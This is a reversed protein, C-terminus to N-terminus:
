PTPRVLKLINEISKLAEVSNTASTEQSLSGVLASQNKETQSAKFNALVSKSEWFTFAGARTTISGTKVGKDNYRVDTQLTSFRACGSAVFLALLPLLLKM